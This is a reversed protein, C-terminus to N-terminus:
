GTAVVGMTGVVEPRYTASGRIAEAGAGYAGMSLAGLALGLLSLCASSRLGKRLSVRMGNSYSFRRGPTGLRLDPHADLRGSRTSRAAAERACLVFRPRSPFSGPSRPPGM